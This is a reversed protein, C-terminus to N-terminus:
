RRSSAGAAPSDPQAEHHRSMWKDSLRPAVLNFVEAVRGGLQDATVPRDELARVVREAAQEASLSRRDEVGPVSEVMPTLVLGFRVSTFTVGDVYTERGAIRGWTDLASKSALYAAFKPQKKQVGWSTVNM